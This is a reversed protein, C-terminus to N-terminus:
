IRINLWLLMEMVSRLPFNLLESFTPNEKSIKDEVIIKDYNKPTNKGIRGNVIAELDAYKDHMTPPVIVSKSGLCSEEINWETFYSNGYANV